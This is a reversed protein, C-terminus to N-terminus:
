DETHLKGDPSKWLTRGDLTVRGSKTSGAPVGKPLTTEAPPPRSGSTRTETTATTPPPTAGTSKPKTTPKETKPERLVDDSARKAADLLQLYEKTRTFGVELEKPNPAIGRSEKLMRAEYGNPGSYLEMAKANFMGQITKVQASAAQDESTISSPLILFTPTGYKSNVELQKKGIQHSNDLIFLLDNQDEKDLKKFRESKILDDKTQQFNRTLENNVNDSSQKQKLDGFTKTEGTDKREVGTKTWKWGGGGEVGKGAPASGSLGFQNAEETSVTKNEKNAIDKQVQDLYTNGKSTADATGLSNSSFKLVNAYEKPSFDFGNKRLRALKDFM